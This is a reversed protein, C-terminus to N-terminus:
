SGCRAICVRLLAVGGLTAVQEFDIGMSAAASRAGAIRGEDLVFFDLRRGVLFSADASRFFTALRDLAAVDLASRETLHLLASYGNVLGPPERRPQGDLHGAIAQWDGGIVKQAFAFRQLNEEPGVTSRFKDAYVRYRHVRAPLVVNLLPDDVAIVDGPSTRSRVLEEVAAERPDARREAATLRWFTWQKVFSLALIAAVLFLVLGQRRNALGSRFSSFLIVLLILLGVGVLVRQIYHAPEPIHLLGASGVAWLLLAALWGSALPAAALWDARRSTNPGMWHQLRTTRVLAWAGSLLLVAFVGLGLAAGGGAGGPLLGQGLYGARTAQSMQWIWPSAIVAGGLAAAVLSVLRKREGTAALALCTGAFVFPVLTYFFFYVHFLLGGAAASLIAWGGGVGRASRVTGLLFALLLPIGIAQPDLRTVILPQASAYEGLMLFGQPGQGLTCFLAGVLLAQPTRGLWTSVLLVALLFSLAPFIGQALAWAAPLSGVARAVTGVLLPPLPANFTVGGRLEAIELEWPLGGQTMVLSSAKAYYTGEDFLVSSRSSAVFIQGGPDALVLISPLACALGFLASALLVMRTFSSGVL